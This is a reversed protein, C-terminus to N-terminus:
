VVDGEEEEGELLGAGEVGEGDEAGFGFFAGLYVAM